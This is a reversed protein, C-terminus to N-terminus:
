CGARVNKLFRLELVPCKKSNGARSAIMKQLRCCDIRLNEPIMLEHGSSKKFNEALSAIKKEFEGSRDRDKRTIKPEGCSHLKEKAFDPADPL